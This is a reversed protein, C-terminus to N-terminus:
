ALEWTGVENGNVDMVAGEGTSADTLREALDRLIRAVEYGPVDEFAANGTDIEIRFM